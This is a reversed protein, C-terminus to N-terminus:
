NKNRGAVRGWRGAARHLVTVAAVLGVVTLAVMGIAGIIVVGVVILAVVGAASALGIVVSAGIITGVRIVSSVVAMVVVAIVPRTIPM